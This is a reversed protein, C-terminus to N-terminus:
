LRVGGLFREARWEWFNGWSSKEARCEQLLKGLSDLLREFIGQPDFVVLHHEYLDFYIPQFTFAEEQSLIYPSFEGSIDEEEYLQQAILEVKKIANEFEELRKRWKPAESLIILLDLDSNRRNEGRAYSGFIVLALLSKGYYEFISQLAGEIYKRHLPSFTRLRELVNKFM